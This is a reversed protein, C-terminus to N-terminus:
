AATAVYHLWMSLRYADFVDLLRYLVPNLPYFAAAHSEAVLPVGLGFRDSWFPLRGQGLARALELKIPRYMLDPDGGVPGFGVLLGGLALGVGATAALLPVPIRARTPAMPM